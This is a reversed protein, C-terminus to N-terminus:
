DKIHGVLNKGVTLASKYHNHLDAPDHLGGIRYISLEGNDKLPFYGITFPYLPSASKEIKLYGKSPVLTHRPSVLGDLHAKVLIDQLAKKYEQEYTFIAQEMRRRMADLEMIEGVIM